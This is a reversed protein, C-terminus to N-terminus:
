HTSLGPVFGPGQNGGSPLVRVHQHHHHHSTGGLKSAAAKSRWQLDDGCVYKQGGKKPFNHQGAGHWHKIGKAADPPCCGLDNQGNVVCVTKGQWKHNVPKAPTAALQAAHDQSGPAKYKADLTWKPAMDGCDFKSGNKIVSQGKGHWSGIQLAKWPECCQSKRAKECLAQTSYGPPNAVPAPAPKPARGGGPLKYNPDMSWQTKDCLWGGGGRHAGNRYWHKIGLPVSPDCCSNGGAMCAELTKFKANPGGSAQGPPAAAGAAGAAAVAGAPSPAPAAPGGAPAAAAPPAPGGGAAPAPPAAM